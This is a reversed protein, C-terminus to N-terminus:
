IFKLGKSRNEVVVIFTSVAEKGARGVLGASRNNQRTSQM